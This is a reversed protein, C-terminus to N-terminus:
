GAPIELGEKTTFENRSRRLTRAIRSEILGPKRTILAPRTAVLRVAAEHVEVVKESISQRPWVVTKKEPQGSNDTKM